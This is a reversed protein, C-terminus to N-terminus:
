GQVKGHLIYEGDDYSLTVTSNKGKEANYIIKDAVLIVDWLVFGLKQLDIVAGLTATLPRPSSIGKAGLWTFGWRIREQLVASLPWKLNHIKLIDWLRM